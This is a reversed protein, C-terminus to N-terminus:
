KKSQLFSPSPLFVMQSYSIHSLTEDPADSIILSMDARALGTYEFEFTRNIYYQKNKVISNGGQNYFKFAEVQKNPGKCIEYGLKFGCGRTSLPSEDRERFPAINMSEDYNKELSEDSLLPLDACGKLPANLDESVGKENLDHIQTITEKLKKEPDLIAPIKNNTIAMKKDDFLSLAQPKLSLNHYFWYDANKYLGNQIHLKMAYNGSPLKRYELVKGVTGKDIESRVLGDDASSHNSSIGKLSDTLEVLDDPAFSMLLFLSSSLIIKKM